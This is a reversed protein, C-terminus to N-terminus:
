IGPTVVIDYSSYDINGPITIVFDTIAINGSGTAEAEAAAETQENSEEGEAGEESEIANGDEDLQVGSSTGVGGIAIMSADLMISPTSGGGVINGASDKLLVVLRANMRKSIMSSAADSSDEEGLDASLKGTVEQGGEVDSISVGSVQFMDAVEQSTVDTKTWIVHEMLPKIEFTVLESEPDSLFATGAAATEVGPYIEQITEGGGVLMVGDANYGEITFTVGDAIYGDNPNNVTFAYNVTQNEVVTFGVNTVEIDQANIEATTIDTTGADSAEESSCGVAGLMGFALACAAISSAIKGTIKM